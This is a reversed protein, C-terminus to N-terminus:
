ARKGWARWAVGLVGLPVLGLSVALLCLAAVLEPSGNAMLTMTRATLTDRGPPALLLPLSVDRLCFIFSVVWAALMVPRLLPMLIGFVRRFWRAGTVEAADELSPSLQSFGAQIIRTSLAAYQAVFGLVVIVPTAYIWNTSPHNWLAILGIGLITGPLMFLFLVLADVGWWGALARRHVLYALFFGLATLTSAAVGAYLASRIASDGARLIADSLATISSGRWLVGALPM